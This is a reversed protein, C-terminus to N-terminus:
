VEVLQEPDLLFLTESETKVMVSSLCQMKGGFVYDFPVAVFSSEPVRQLSPQGNIPLGAVKGASNQVILLHQQLQALQSKNTDDQDLYAKLYLYQSPTSGFVQHGVDLLVIKKDQYGTLIVNPSQPDSYIDSLIVVKQVADLPLAFREQQLHFLILKRTAEAQRAAFRRSRLLSTLAM